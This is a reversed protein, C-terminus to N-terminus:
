GAMKGDMAGRIDIANIGIANRGREASGLSEKRSWSKVKCVYGVMGDFHGSLEVLREIIDELGRAARGTTSASATTTADTAWTFGSSGSSGDSADLLVWLL